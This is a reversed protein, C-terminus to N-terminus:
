SPRRGSAGFLSDFRESLPGDFRAEDVAIEHVVLRASRKDSAVMLDAVDDRYPDRTKAYAAFAVARAETAIAAAPRPTRGNSVTRRQEVGPWLAALSSLDVGDASSSEAVGAAPALTQVDAAGITSRWVSLDDLDVKGDANADGQSRVANNATGLGRQWTLFDAGDVDDDDDFDAFNGLVAFGYNHERMRGSGADVVRVTVIYEGYNDAETTSFTFQGTTPHVSANPPAGPLLSFSLADGEPDTAPVIFSIVEGPTVFVDPLGQIRVAKNTYGIDNLEALVDPPLDAQSVNETEAASALTELGFEIRYHESHRFNLRLNSWDDHGVLITDASPDNMDLKNINFGTTVVDDEDGDDNWDIPGFEPVIRGPLPGIKTSHAPHGGIGAMEVLNNEDLTPFRRDSYDL